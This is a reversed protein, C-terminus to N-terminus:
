RLQKAVGSVIKQMDDWKAKMDAALAFQTRARILNHEPYATRFYIDGDLYDKLFRIGIEMTITFAGLTLNDVEVDTLTPAAELFGQTFVRFRNLDLKMKKWDPEDEAATAAGFRIADGFDHVSLGPMVTDLDLVCLSKRTKRDLLVNNLKTDNHTIRLPITGAERMHQLISCQEEQELAFAIEQPVSASRDVNDSRIAEKLKRYRDVTNHFEPITEYLSDAPFDSLLHQFRGFALASQYFDEDSEPADLCFGGVYDYMRWFEGEPDRYCYKGRLTPIFHLVMRPDEVRERIYNTVASANIMVKMPDKFVYKNIKQLIYENGTDTTIKFTHNIHGHGFSLCSEPQGHLRFAYTAKEITMINNKEKIWIHNPRLEDSLATFRLLWM